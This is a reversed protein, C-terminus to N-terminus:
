APKYPRLPEVEKEEWSLWEEASKPTDNNQWSTSTNNIRLTLHRLSMRSSSLLTCLDTYHNYVNQLVSSDTARLMIPYHATTTGSMNSHETLSLEVRRILRLVVPSRDCLFAFATALAFEGKFSFMAGGYLVESAEANIQKNTQLLRANPRDLSHYKHELQYTMSVFRPINYIDQTGFAVNLDFTPVPWIRWRIRVHHCPFKRELHAYFSSSRFQASQSGSVIASEIAIIKSDNNDILAYEYILDRIERPLQLLRSSAHVNLNLITDM